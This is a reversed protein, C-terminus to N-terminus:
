SKAGRSLLDKEIQSFIWAMTSPNPRGEGFHIIAKERYKRVEAFILPEPFEQKVNAFPKRGFIREFEEFGRVIWDTDYFTVAYRRLWVWMFTPDSVNPAERHCRACLLVLNHAADAGGLKHPVVHCKELRVRRSCRWCREHAEAWDVSLGCEDQHGSWYHVIEAASTTIM